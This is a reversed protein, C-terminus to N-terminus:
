WMADVDHGSGHHEDFIRALQRVVAGVVFVDTDILNSSESRAFYEDAINRGGM